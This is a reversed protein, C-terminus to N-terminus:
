PSYGKNILKINEKEWRTYEDNLYQYDWANDFLSLATHIANIKEAKYQHIALFVYSFTKAKLENKIRPWPWVNIHEASIAFRQQLWSNLVLQHYPLLHLKLSLREEPSRKRDSKIKSQALKEENEHKSIFYEEEDDFTGTVEDFVTEIDVRYPLMEYTEDALPLGADDDALSKLIDGVRLDSPSCKALSGNFGNTLSLIEMAADNLANKEELSLHSNLGRRNRRRAAM